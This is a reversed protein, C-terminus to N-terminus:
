CHRFLNFNVTGNYNSDKVRETWYEMYKLLDHKDIQDFYNPSIAWTDSVKTAIMETLMDSQQDRNLDKWKEIYDLITSDVQENHYGLILKLEGHYPVLNIFLCNVWSSKLTLVDDATVDVNNTSFVTSACVPLYKLDVIEFHFKDSAYNLEQLMEKEYFDRLSASLEEVKLQYEITDRFTQDAVLLRSQLVNKLIDILIEKTRIVACFTKFSFLLQNHYSYFDIENKEIQKFIGDDHEECFLSLSLAKNLSILKIDTAGKKYTNFFGNPEIQRIHSARAIGNLIGNKQLIHSNIAKKECLFCSREKKKANDHIKQLIQYDNILLPNM